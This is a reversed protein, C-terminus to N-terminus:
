DRTLVELHANMEKVYREQTKVIIKALEPNDAIDKTLKSACNSVMKAENSCLLIKCRIASM